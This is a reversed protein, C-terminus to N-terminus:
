EQNQNQPNNPNEQKQPQTMLKQAFAYVRASITMSDFEYLTEAMEQM